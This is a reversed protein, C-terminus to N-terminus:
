FLKELFEMCRQLSKGMYSIHNDPRLLIYFDTANKFITKPIETFSIATVPFPLHQLQEFNNKGKGFYLLKFGPETLYDYMNKADRFVFYPMRQGAKIKGVSSKMTLASGPYAINTM